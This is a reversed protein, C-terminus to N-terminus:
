NQDPGGGAKNERNLVLGGTNGGVWGLGADAGISTGAPSPMLTELAPSQPSAPVPRKKSPRLPQEGVLTWDQTAPGARPPSLRRAALSQSKM